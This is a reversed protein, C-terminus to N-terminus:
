GHQETWTQEACAWLYDFLDPFHQLKRHLHKPYFSLEKGPEPFNPIVVYAGRANVWSSNDTLYYVLEYAPDIGTSHLIPLEVRRWPPDLKDKIAEACTLIGAGNYPTKLRQSIWVKIRKCAWFPIAEGGTSSKKQPGTGRSYKNGIESHTHCAFVLCVNNKPLISALKRLQERIKRPKDGMGEKYKDGEKEGETQSASITDWFIGIPMDKPFRGPMRLRAITSFIAKFGYEVTDAQLHVHRANDHGMVVARKRSWGTDADILVSIGPYRQFGIMMEELITSKGHSPDGFVEVVRGCPAGGGLLKNLGFSRTPVYMTVDSVCLNDGTVALDAKFEKNLDQAVCVLNKHIRDSDM